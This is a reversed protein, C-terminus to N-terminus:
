WKTIDTPLKDAFMTYSTQPGNDFVFTKLNKTQCLTKKSVAGMYKIYPAELEMLAYYDVKPNVRDRNVYLGANKKTVTKVDIIKGNCIMDGYDTGNAVSRKHTTFDPFVNLLKAMYLEGLFGKYDSEYDKLSFPSLGKCAQYRMAAVIDAIRLEAETFKYIVRRPDNM